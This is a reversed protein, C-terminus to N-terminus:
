NSCLRDAGADTTELVAGPNLNPCLLPLQVAQIPRCGVGLKEDIDQRTWGVPSVLGEVARLLLEGYKEADYSSAGNYGEFSRVRDSPRRAKHDTIIYRVKEGPSLTVGRGALERAVIATHSNVVYRSPDKSLRRTIVLAHGAMGGSRLLELYAQAVELVDTIKAQYEARNSAAALVAIMREQAERLFPPTDARRLELGRVKTEGSSFAGFYRNAVATRPDTRSPPFAIWKYIGELAAPMGAEREIAELLAIYDEEKAGEKQVWIADVIAHILRFGRAEAVEKAQLLKERGYATVSEHAEIKGYRANKYGLYGFCCVLLWKHASQRRRYADKAPGDPLCQILAKYRERKELLPELTVPILGRRKRCINYGIEPVMNDPCCDCGVTEPSVNFQVMISPYMSAFDIEAVNEHLGLVPQYVLGGKDATVLELGSKFEEPERKRWPILIGQRYATALQMTSIGTGPSSRAAQQVPIRTIRAFEFLGALSYDDLLMANKRDIHWRGFLTHSPARYVVRGYSYYSHAPKHHPARQADRNLPLTIGLRAAATLLRPIIFSDGWESIILDPDYCILLDRLTTLIDRVETWDFVHREGEVLVELHGPRGHHPNGEDDLGLGMVKLGPLRHEIEWPSDDVELSVIKGSEAELRCFALPFAGKAMFYYQPLPVDCNYFTLHTFIQATRRVVKPYDAPRIVEVRLVRITEGLSLEFREAWSLRVPCSRLFRIASQLQSPPGALAFAPHFADTFRRAKGHKDIVWVTMGEFQPYVDFLWGESISM